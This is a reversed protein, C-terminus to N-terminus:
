KTAWPDNIDGIRPHPSPAGGTGSPAPPHAAPRPLNPKSLLEVHLDLDPGDAAVLREEYGPARLLYHASAAPAADFPTTGVRVGESWVEAFSPTSTIHLARPVATTPPPPVSVAMAVTASSAVAPAPATVEPSPAHPWLRYAVGAGVLVLAGAAAVLPWRLPAVFGLDPPVDSPHEEEVPLFLPAPRRSPARPQAADVVAGDPAVQVIRDVATALEQMSQFRDEPKKELARLIVTELAGLQAGSDPLLQSPPTPQVFMHQTLIGMYTDAEFPVRGTFLVYMMVGLAYVDARQDVPHGGAQEPSMYHPTGFVVGARTLRGAGAVKAAGFDVIRVQDKTDPALSPNGVLFVNEPKLDRHVVGAEHTAQLGSAVQTVIRAGRGVPLPGGRKILDALTEGALIEMVFYPTGDDITGFDNIAVINPHKVAATARAELTFRTALEPDRAVDRRLVKMAFLRNLTTHRVEYVTGMGGEGLVSVIKYRGDITKGVMPDASPDWTGDALKTGDFPCFVADANFQQGCEACRRINRRVDMTARLGDTEAPGPSEPQPGEPSAPDILTDGQM